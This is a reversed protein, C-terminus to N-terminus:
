WAAQAIHAIYTPWIMSSLRGSRRTVQGPKLIKQGLFSRAVKSRADYWSAVLFLGVYTQVLFRSHFQNEAFM